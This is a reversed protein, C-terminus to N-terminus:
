KWVPEPIVVIVDGNGDYEITSNNDRDNPIAIKFKKNDLDFVTKSDGTVVTLTCKEPFAVNAYISFTGVLTPIKVGSARLSVKGRHNVSVELPIFAPQFSVGSGMPSKSGFRQSICGRAFFLIIFIAALVILVEILTFGRTKRATM